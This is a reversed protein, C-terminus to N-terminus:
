KGECNESEQALADCCDFWKSAKSDRASALSRGRGGWVLIGNLYRQLSCKNWAGGNNSSPEPLWRQGNMNSILFSSFSPVVLSECLVLLSISGFCYKM